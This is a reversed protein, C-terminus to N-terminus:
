GKMRPDVYFDYVESDSNSGGESTLTFRTIQWGDVHSPKVNVRRSITWNHKHGHFRGSNKPRASRAGDYSVAVRIGAKGTVNRVMTRAAKFSSDVCMPPSVARSGGPMDLVSGTQGSALDAIQVQAGNSLTWGTGDFGAATQGPALTYWHRDKAAIFPQTFVPQTCASTDVTVPPKVPPRKAAAPSAAVACAALATLAGSLAVARTRHSSFLFQTM